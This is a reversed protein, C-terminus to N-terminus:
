SRWALEASLDLYIKIVEKEAKSPDLIDVIEGLRELLGDTYRRSEGTHPLSEPSSPM